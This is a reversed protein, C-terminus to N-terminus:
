PDRYYLTVSMRQAVFENHHNQAFAMLYINYPVANVAGPAIIPFTHKFPVIIRFRKSKPYLSTYGTAENAITYVIPAPQVPPPQPLLMTGQTLLRTAGTNFQYVRDMHVDWLKSNIPMTSANAVFLNGQTPNGTAPDRHRVMILRVTDYPIFNIAEAADMTFALDFVIELYISNWKTGEVQGNGAGQQPWTIYSNNLGDLKNTSWVTTIGQPYAAITINAAQHYTTYKLEPKRNLRTKWGKVISRGYVGRIKKMKRGKRSFRSRSRGRVKRIARRLIRRIRRRSRSRKRWRPM